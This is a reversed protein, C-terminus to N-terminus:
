IIFSHYKRIIIKRDSYYIKLSTTFAIMELTENAAIDRPAQQEGGHLTADLLPGSYEYVIQVGYWRSIDLFHKGLQKIIWCFTNNMWAQVEQMDAQASKQINGSTIAVQERLLILKNASTLHM